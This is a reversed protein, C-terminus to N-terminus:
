PKQQLLATQKTYWTAWVLSAVALVAMVGVVWSVSPAIALVIVSDIVCQVCIIAAVSNADLREGKKRSLYTGGVAVALLLLILVSSV